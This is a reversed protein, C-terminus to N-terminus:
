VRSSTGSMTVNKLTKWKSVQSQAANKPALTAWRGPSIGEAVAEMLFKPPRFILNLDPINWGTDDFPCLVSEGATERSNLLDDIDGGANGGAVRQRPEIPPSLAAVGPSDSEKGGVGQTSGAQVQGSPTSVERRQAANFSRWAEGGPVAEQVTLLM